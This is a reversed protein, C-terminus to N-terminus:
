RAGSREDRTYVRVWDVRMQQPFSTSADPMGPWDGGVAVNLLLFFPHDYVWDCGPPLSKPTVTHYLRDDLYFRLAEPEWEVAFCHFDDALQRGEPLTFSGTIGQAGCYGPGHVTGFVVSPEKGVNEMIDIEGCRPWGVTQINDGLMWFAPWIGQGRPVQIRAEFRGCTQTFTRDTKLRASTYGARVGDSGTYDERRAELVLAGDRLYANQLRNTYYELEHNGWGHGGTDYVWRSSDPAGGEPGEFEDHWVLRWGPRGPQCGSAEAPPSPSGPQPVTAPLPSPADLPASAPDAPPREFHSPFSLRNELGGSETRIWTDFSKRGERLVLVRAGRELPAPGYVSLGTKRGYGLAIGRLLGVYDNVHDHGAFVGMVDQRAELATFLGTNRGQSAEDELRNGSARHNWAATHEQLPIHFFMLSPVPAGQNSRAYAESTESYWRVQDTTLWAYGDREQEAADPMGDGHDHSDLMYLVSATAGRSGQVELTYNGSSGLEPPGPQSLSYPKSQLYKLVDQGTPGSEADHNGMLFAYPVRRRIMPALTAEFYENLPRGSWYLVDGTLVVLDPKEAELLGDLLRDYRAAYEPGAEPQFHLDTLQLIKFTGDERFRLTPSAAQAGKAVQVVRPAEVPAAAAPTPAGGLLVAATCAVCGLAKLRQLGTRSASRPAGPVDRDSRGRSGAGQHANEARSAHLCPLTNPM